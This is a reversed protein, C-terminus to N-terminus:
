ILDHCDWQNATSENVLQYLRSCWSWGTELVVAATLRGNVAIESSANIDARANM